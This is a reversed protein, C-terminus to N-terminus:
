SASSITLRARVADFAHELTISRGASFDDVSQQMEAVFQAIMAARAAIRESGDRLLSERSDFEGTALMQDIYAELMEGPTM